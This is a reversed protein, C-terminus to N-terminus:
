DVYSQILKIMTNTILKITNNGDFYVNKFDYTLPLTLAISETFPAFANDM